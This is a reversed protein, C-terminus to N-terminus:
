GSAELKMIKEKPHSDLAADLELLHRRITSFNSVQKKIAVIDEESGREELHMVLRMVDAITDPIQKVGINRLLALKCTHLTTEVDRATLKAKKKPPRMDFLENHEAPEDDIAETIDYEIGFMFFSLGVLWLRWTYQSGVVTRMRSSNAFILTNLLCPVRKRLFSSSLMGRLGDRDIKAGPIFRMHWDDFCRILWDYGKPELLDNGMRPALGAAVTPVLFSALDDNKDGCVADFLDVLAGWLGILVHLETYGHIPRGGGVRFCKLPALGSRKMAAAVFGHLGQRGFIGSPMATHMNALGNRFVVDVFKGGECLKCQKAYKFFLGTFCDHKELCKMVQALIAVSTPVQEARIGLGVGLNRDNGLGPKGIFPEPPM